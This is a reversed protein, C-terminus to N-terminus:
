IIVGGPGDASVSVSGGAVRRGVGARNLIQQTALNVLHGDGRGGDVAFDDSARVVRNLRTLPAREHSFKLMFDNYSLIINASSHM